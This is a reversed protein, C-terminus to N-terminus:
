GWPVLPRHPQSFGTGTARKGSDAYLGDSTGGPFPVLPSASPWAVLPLRLYAKLYEPFRTHYSTTFRKRRRLCARRMQFGVPGETAIHVADPRFERLMDDLQRREPFALHIEPYITCPYNTFLGPQIMRVEHGLRGLERATSDLTRVVGNVQPLWADTALLIRM